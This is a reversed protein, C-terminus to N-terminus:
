RRKISYSYSGEKKPSQASLTLRHVQAGWIKSLRPDNLDLSEVSATFSKPDYTMEIASNDRELHILGPITLKPKSWTLFNIQHPGLVCKLKYTDSILVGDDELDYSRIWKEIQAEQPYALSIDTSLIQNHEDFSTNRAAFTRGASQSFGNIHPVNHYDSQMTWINYRENSFTQRTYTGVGVDIMFPINDIFLSFTGVDNHNHSQGNHSGKAGIFFGQDNKM